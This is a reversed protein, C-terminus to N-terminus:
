KEQLYAGVRNAVKGTPKKHPLPENGPKALKSAVRHDIRLGFWASQSSAHLNGKEVELHVVAREPQFDLSGQLWDQGFGLENKTGGNFGKFRVKGFVQSHPMADAQIVSGGGQV